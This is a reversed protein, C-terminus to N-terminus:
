QFQIKVINLKGNSESPVVLSQADWEMADRFRLNLKKFSTNLVSKRISQGSPKLLYESVTGEAGIADNFIIRLLGSTRFVFFSSFLGEDDQSFQRKHLLHDWRLTGISDFSAVLIDDFYYDYWKNSFPSTPDVPSFYPRRSLERTSEFFLLCGGDVSLVVDRLNLTSGSLGLKKQNGKREQLLSESIPTQMTSIHQDNKDLIAIVYTSPDENPKQAYLGALLFRQNINDVKLTPDSLLESQIPLTLTNQKQGGTNLILVFPHSKSKSGQKEKSIGYFYSKGTNSIEFSQITSEPDEPLLHHADIQYFVSDLIRNYLLFSKSHDLNECAISVWHTDESAQLHFGENPRFDIDRALIKDSVSEANENFREYRLVSGEKELSAYFIGIENQHEFIEIIKWKKGKLEIFKESSWQFDPYLSQYSVRFSKDRLLSIWGNPHRVMYYSFDNKINIDPSIIVTQAEAGLSCLIFAILILLPWRIM